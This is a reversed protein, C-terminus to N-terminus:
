KRQQTKNAEVDCEYGLILTKNQTGRLLTIFNCSFLLKMIAYSRIMCSIDMYQHKGLLEKTESEKFALEKICLVFDAQM